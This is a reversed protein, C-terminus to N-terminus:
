AEAAQHCTCRCPAACVKCEAPQKAGVVGTEGQCYAHGTRGDPLVTDGHLCGTSLYRHTEPKEAAEATAAMEALTLEDFNELFWRARPSLEDWGSM